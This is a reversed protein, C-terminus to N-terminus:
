PLLAAAVPAVYRRRSRDGDLPSCLAAASALVLTGRSVGSRVTLKGSIARLRERMELFGTGAVQDQPHESLGIGNDWVALSVRGGRRRLRLAVETAASHDEANRLAEEAVRFFVLDVDALGSRSVGDLRTRVAIGSRASFGSALQKLAPGLGVDDLLPPRLRRALGRLQESVAAALAGAEQAALSTAVPTEPVDALSQLVRAVHALTQVPDDNLLDALQQRETEIEEFIAALRRPDEAEVPASATDSLLRLLHAPPSM